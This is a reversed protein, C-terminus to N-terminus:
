DRKEDVTWRRKTLTPSMREVKETENAGRVGEGGGVDEWISETQTERKPPPLPHLDEVDGDIGDAKKTDLLAKGISSADPQQQSSESRKGASTGPRSDPPSTSFDLLPLGNGDGDSVRGVAGADSITQKAPVSQVAPQGFSSLRSPEHQQHQQPRLVPTRGAPPTWLGQSIPPSAPLEGGGPFSSNMRSPLTSGPASLPAASPRRISGLLASTNSTSRPTELFSLPQSDISSGSGSFNRKYQALSDRVSALDARDRPFSSASATSSPRLHETSAILKMDYIAPLSPVTSNRRNPLGPAQAPSTGSPPTLPPADEKRVAMTLSATGVDLLVPQGTFAGILANCGAGHTVLVVVLEEEEEDNPTTGHEGMEGKEAQEFGLADEGRDDVDHRSYWEVLEGLGKRFRKHMGSWEEGLEGGDGWNQPARSSDWQFDVNTCANRAHAVYGRPIHDSSSVAYQPTPPHYVSLEPKPLTSTLPSLASGPRFPSKRGSEVPSSADSGVTSARSRSERVATPAPLSEQIKSWEDLSQIRAGGNWLSSSGSAMGSSTAMPTFVEVTENQMLEAKATRVMMASPPPPTIDEFYGPNLWEGLFADVRLKSRRYRKRERLARRAVEHALDHKHEGVPMLKPSAGGGEAARLRPSAIGLPNPSRSRQEVVSKKMQGQGQATEVTPSFQALGAAIATSTQLCRLFPSTHIVVKHKVVRRKKRGEGDGGGEAGRKGNVNLTAFDTSSVGDGEGPTSLKQERAHLLTAIRLGLARCQNWGGYTLPPDYPTPTSLHWQQDAADLRPGHRHCVANSEVRENSPANHIGVKCCDSGGTSAGNGQKRHSVGNHKLQGHHRNIERRTM